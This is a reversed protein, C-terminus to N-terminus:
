YNIGGYSLSTDGLRAYNVENVIAVIPQTTSTIVASGLFDDPLDENDPQYFTYFEYPALVHSETWPGGPGNTRYYTVWVTTTGAGINQVQIGTDWNNYRKCLLPASINKTGGSFCSYSLGKGAVYNVQNVIAVIPQDSTVVASGIFGDPLEANAPQYFTHAQGPGVIATETYPGGPGRYTLNHGGHEAGAARHGL